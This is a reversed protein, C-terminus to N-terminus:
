NRNALRDVAEIIPKPQAIPMLHEQTTLAIYESNPNKAGISQYYQIGQQKWNKLKPNQAIWQEEFDTDFVITPIHSPWSFSAAYKLDSPYLTLEKIRAIHNEKLKRHQYIADFYAKDFISKQHKPVLGLVHRYEKDLRQLLIKHYRGDEIQEIIKQKQQIFPAVDNSYQAISETILVDADILIVGKIKLNKHKNLLPLLSLNSSAYGIVIWSSQPLQSLVEAIHESFSQYSQGESYNSFGHGSRDLALSYHKQPLMPQLLSFWASDAYFNDTPGSLMLIGIPSKKDGSEHGYLTLDDLQFLRSGIPLSEATAISTAFLSLFTAFIVVTRM